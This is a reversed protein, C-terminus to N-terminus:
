LLGRTARTLTAKLAILGLVIWFTMGATEKAPAPLKTM